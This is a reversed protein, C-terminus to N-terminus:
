KPTTQSSRAQTIAAYAAPSVGKNLESQATSAQSTPSNAQENNGLHTIVEKFFLRLNAKPPVGTMSYGTQTGLATFNSWLFCAWIFLFFFFSFFPLNFGREMLWEGKLMQNWGRVM